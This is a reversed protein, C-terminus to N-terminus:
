GVEARLFLACSTTSCLTAQKGSELRSRIEDLLVRTSAEFSSSWEEVRFNV